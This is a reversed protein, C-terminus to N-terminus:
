KSFYHDGYQFLHEEGYQNWGTSCFYLAGQSEDHGNTLLLFAEMSDANGETMGATYFQNPAYVVEEVSYGTKDCRNQVTNMVLCLGEVGQNRAEALAIGELIRREEDTYSRFATTRVLPVPDIKVEPQPLEIVEYYDPQPKMPIEYNHNEIVGKCAIGVLIIILCTGILNILTRM